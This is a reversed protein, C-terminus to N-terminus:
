IGKKRKQQNNKAIKGKSKRKQKTLMKNAIQQVVFCFPRFKGNKDREGYTLILRELQSQSLRLDILVSQIVKKRLEVLRAHNLALQDITSKAQPDKNKNTVEVEGSPLYRFRSECNFVLPSVLLLEDYDAKAHAGYDAKSTGSPFAALLNNYNVDEFDACRSQPKFHEIHSSEAEIRQGTYCCIHGQELLLSEKIVTKVQPPMDSYSCNIYKGNIYQGDIWDTLAQPKDRKVIHKM